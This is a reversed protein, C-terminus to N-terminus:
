TRGPRGHGTSTSSTSSTQSFLRCPLSTSNFSAPVFMPHPCVRLDSIKQEAASPNNALVHLLQIYSLVVSHTMKKLEAVCDCPPASCEAAGQAPSLQPIELDPQLAADSQLDAASYRVGFMEYEGTPPAPPHMEAGETDFVHYYRPPDPFCQQDDNLDNMKVFRLDSSLSLSISVKYIDAASRFVCCLRHLM